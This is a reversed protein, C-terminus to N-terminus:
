NQLNQQCIHQVFESDNQRQKNNAFLDASLSRMFLDQRRHRCRNM